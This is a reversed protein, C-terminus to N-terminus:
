RQQKPAVTQAAIFDLSPEGCYQAIKARVENRLHTVDQWESGHPMIPECVTVVVRSPRLLKEDDRLLHRTGQMAVPCVPINTEAAIKFAGLRFPRLGQSYGFTGEPFILISHGERLAREIHKTDELGKSFDMRDVPLHGLKRMFTGVLPASLLEKKGIFLTGTPLVGLLVIPDVYSAHNCAFIVPSKKNLNEEGILETPCFIVFQLFKAWARTAKIATKQEAFRVILYVPILSFFLVCAVYFTYIFKAITTFVSGLKRVFGMAGLRTIQMWPPTQKKGLRGELYLKKCAARQLKGSSTKPVVHPAVLIVHDPVIDLTSSIADQIDTEIKERKEKEEERTEAVVILQETGREKDVDSFAAVCGQRVGLVGSVIEEIEAPYLNRGAKIILDKRRGTIFVEKDAIYALDGTDLWGDHMIAATATPNNYYGQMSSPGTFQLSGVHREPLPSGKEDVVRFQHGEIPLGCAVYTLANEDSSTVALRDEEFQKRDIHDLRFDRDLPPIALAVTSEALGYVPLIAKRKLGYPAFKKAFEELTRPYVKEAGNAAVRWSSLDLGEILAPDIKRICLEYGFNPAGSLTGRHYHIAWLWREPHNLFSFPTLLVLPVGFYLSGLWMGILGMDHYLPLWSVAVDDPTVKIGKGYARINSILNHHTLLVGKPDSTSGSTYQIFAFNDAKAKFPNQLEETNLLEDVTTIYKLSPVFAKLLHSLKEAEEFTILVRVEANGLIRAETKAYAELMHMRFPPYIPVPVGGALLVGFFTYFFGPNTPQMIAVTEGEKLGRARLSQAVRLSSSLLKGYTIIEQQGDEKQFFIHAKDPANEGYLLLADILSKAQFPDVNARAGHSTIIERHMEVTMSPSATELYKAIDSLTEAEALLKDPATVGFNKEIRQFLEARGLSDIGLHRSLSSDIKVQRKHAEGSEALLQTTIDILQKEIEQNSLKRM